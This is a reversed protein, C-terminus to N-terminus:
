CNQSFLSICIVEKNEKPNQPLFQGFQVSCTPTQCLSASIKLTFLIFFLGFGDADTKKGISSYFVQDTKGEKKEKKTGLISNSGFPEESSSDCLQM